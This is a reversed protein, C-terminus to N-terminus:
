LAKMIRQEAVDILILAMPDSCDISIDGLMKEQHASRWGLMFMNRMSNQLKKTKFKNLTIMVRDNVMTSNTCLEALGAIVGYEVYQDRTHAIDSKVVNAWLMTTAVAIIISKTVINAFKVVRRM